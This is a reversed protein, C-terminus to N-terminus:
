NTKVTNEKIFSSLTGHEAYELIIYLKNEGMKYDKLELMTPLKLGPYFKVEDEEKSRKMDKTDITVTKMAYYKGTRKEKVLDVSGTSGDGIHDEIKYKPLPCKLKELHKQIHMYINTFRIKDLPKIVYIQINYEYCEKILEEDGGGSMVVILTKKM